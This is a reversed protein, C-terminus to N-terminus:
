GRVSQELIEPRDPLKGSAGGLVALLERRQKESEELSTKLQPNEKFFKVSTQSIFDFMHKYKAIFPLSLSAKSYRKNELEDHINALIRMVAVPFDLALTEQLFEDMEEMIWYYILLIRLLLRLYGKSGSYIDWCM